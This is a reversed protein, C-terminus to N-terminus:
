PSPLTLQREGQALTITAPTIGVVTWGHFGDGPRLWASVEPGVGLQVRPDVEAFLVGLAVPTPEAQVQSPSIVPGHPPTVPRPPPPDRFPDREGPQATTLLSDKAAQAKNLAPIDSGPGPRAAPETHRRALVLGVAHETRAVLFIGTLALLGIAIWSVRPQPTPQNV